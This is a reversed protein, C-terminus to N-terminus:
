VSRQTTRHDRKSRAYQLTDQHNLPPVLSDALSTLTRQNELKVARRVVARLWLARLLLVIAILVLKYIVADVTTSAYGALLFLTDLAVTRSM